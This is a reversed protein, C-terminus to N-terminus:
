ATREIKGASIASIEITPITPSGFVIVFAIVSMTLEIPGVDAASVKLPGISPRVLLL